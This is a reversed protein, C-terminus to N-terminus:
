DDIEIIAFHKNFTLELRNSLKVEYDRRGVEYELVLADPYHTKVYNMIQVPVLGAPVGAVKSEIKQLSGDNFFELRVGNALVVKYDPRILDDDITILSIKENPYNGNIFTQASSPLLDFTIPRDGAMATSISLILVSIVTIIQKM